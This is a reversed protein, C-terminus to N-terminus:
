KKEVKGYIKRKSYIVREVRSSCWKCIPYASSAEYTFDPYNSFRDKSKDKKCILCIMDTMEQGIIIGSDGESILQITM